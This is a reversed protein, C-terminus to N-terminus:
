LAPGMSKVKSLQLVLDGIKLTPPNSTFDVGDVTGTIETKVPISAGNITTGEVTITYLGDDAPTGDNHKGDWQYPQAGGTLALSTQFAVHGSSDKITITANGSKDANLIWKAKGNELANVSGDSVVSRGVFYLAGIANSADTKSLLSSLADNQKIQQEVSAFQVLQATFENTNLPDLPNQNKLQTTLLTLFQDFNQAIMQRDAGVSGLSGSSGNPSSTSQVAM